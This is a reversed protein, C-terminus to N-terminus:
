KYADPIDVPVDVDVVGKFLTGGNHTNTGSPDYWDSFNPKLYSANTLQTWKYLRLAEMKQMLIQTARLNDRSVSTVTFGASIAAYLSILMVGLVFIAAMTEVFTYATPSLPAGKTNTKM